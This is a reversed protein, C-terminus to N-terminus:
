QLLKLFMFWKTFPKIGGVFFYLCWGGAAQEGAPLLHGGGQPLAPAASPRAPNLQGREAPAQQLSPPAGEACQEGRRPSPLSPDRLGGYGTWGWWPGGESDRPGLALEEM